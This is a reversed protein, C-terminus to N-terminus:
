EEKLLGQVLISDPTLTPTPSRLIALATQALPASEPNAAAVQQWINLAIEKDGWHWKYFALVTALAPDQTPAPRVWQRQTQWSGFPQWEDGGSLRMNFYSVAYIRQAEQRGPSEELVQKAWGAAAADRGLDANANAM